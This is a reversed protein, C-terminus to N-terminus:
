GGDDGDGHGSVNNECFAFRRFLPTFLLTNPMGACPMFAESLADPKLFMMRCHLFSNFFQRFYWHNLCARFLCSRKHSRTTGSFGRSHTTLVQLFAISWGYLDRRIM